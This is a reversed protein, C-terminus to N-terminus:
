FKSEHEKERHYKPVISFEKSFIINQTHTRTRARKIEQTLLLANHPPLTALSLHGAQEM